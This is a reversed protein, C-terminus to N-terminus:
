LVLRLSWPKLYPRSCGFSQSNCKAFELRKDEIDAVYVRGASRAFLISVLGICGAGLVIVSDGFSVGIADM